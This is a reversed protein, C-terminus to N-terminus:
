VIPLGDYEFVRYPLIFPWLHNPWGLFITIDMLSVKHGFIKAAVAPFCSFMGGECGMTISLVVLYAWFSGNLYGKRIIIFLNYGDICHM